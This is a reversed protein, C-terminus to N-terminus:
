GRPTDDGVSSGQARQAEATEAVLKALQDNAEALRKASEALEAAVAARAEAVQKAQADVRADSVAQERHHRRRRLIMGLLAGVILWPLVNFEEVTAVIAAALCCGGLFM